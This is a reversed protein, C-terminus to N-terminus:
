EPFDELGDCQQAASSDQGRHEQERAAFQVLAPCCVM